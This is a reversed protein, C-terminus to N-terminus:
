RGIDREYPTRLSDVPDRALPKRCWTRSGCSPSGNLEGCFNYGRAPSEATTPVHAARAMGNVTRTIEDKENTSQARYGDHTVRSEHRAPYQDFLNLVRVRSFTESPCNFSRSQELSATRRKSLLLPQNQVVWHRETEAMRGRSRSRQFASEPPRWPCSERDSGEHSRRPDYLRAVRSAVQTFRQHCGRSPCAIQLHKTRTLLAKQKLVGQSIHLFWMHRTM